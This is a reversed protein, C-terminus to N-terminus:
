PLQYLFKPLLLFRAYSSVPLFYALSAFVVNLLVRVRCMVDDIAQPVRRRPRARCHV